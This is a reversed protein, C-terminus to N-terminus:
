KTQGLENCQRCAAWLNDPENTGGVALPVIHDIALSVGMLAEEALCYGCRYNAEHRIVAKLAPTIASRSM